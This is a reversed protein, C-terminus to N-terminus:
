IIHIINYAYVYYKIKLILYKGNYVLKKDFSKNIISSVNGRM